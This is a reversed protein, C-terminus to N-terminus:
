SAADDVYILCTGCLRDALTRESKGCLCIALGTCYFLPLADLVRALNRLGHRIRGAREGDVTVVRIGALRKGPSSGATLIECVPHYLFYLALAPATMLWALEASVPRGGGALGSLWAHTGSGALWLLTAAARIHWDILFAYARAGLGARDATM